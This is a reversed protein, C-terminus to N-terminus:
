EEIQFSSRKALVTVPSYKKKDFLKFYEDPTERVEYPRDKSDKLRTVMYDKQKQSARVREIIKGQKVGMAFKRYISIDASSMEERYTESSGWVQNDFYWKLSLDGYTCFINLGADLPLQNEFLHVMATVPGETKSSLSKWYKGYPEAIVLLVVVAAVPWYKAEKLRNMLADVTHGKLLALLPLLGCLYRTFFSSSAMSVVALYLLVFAIAALPQIGQPSKLKKQKWVFALLLALALAFPWQYYDAGLVGLYDVVNQFATNGGGSSLRKTFYPTDLMWLLYPLNVALALGQSVLLIWTKKGRYVLLLSAGAVVMAIASLYNTHFLLLTSVFAAVLFGISKQPGLVYRLGFVMSATVFFMNPAYYRVQRTLLVFGINFGLFVAALLAMRQLKKDKFLYPILLLLALTLLSFFAFGARLAIDSTGFVSMVGYAWYFQLWPHLKWENNPGMEQDFQQTFSNKEDRGLPISSGSLSSAVLATEAEDQWLKFHGLRYLSPLISLLLVAIALSRYLKM